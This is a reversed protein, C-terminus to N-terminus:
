RQPHEIGILRRRNDRLLHLRDSQSQVPSPASRRRTIAPIHRAQEASQELNRLQTRSNGERFPHVYNVDGMIAGAAKAFATRTLGRLFNAETLRRHIDAMGTGIFRRFQFQHGGKAIEVTRLEGAWVYFNQFLNRHIACLHALDFHGTPIGATNGMADRRSRSAGSRYHRAQQTPSFQGPDHLPRQESPPWRRDKPASIPGVKDSRVCRGFSRPNPHRFESLWQRCAHVPRIHGDRRLRRLSSVM